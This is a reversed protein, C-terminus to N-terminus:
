KRGLAKLIVDTFQRIQTDLSYEELFFQSLEELKDDSDPSSIKNLIKEALQKPSHPDFTEIRGCTVERLAPIDSVLVPTKLVAAEIPTWGFGEIVSPTVFLDAHTYLWRMEAESRNSTDITVRDELGLQTVLVKLEEINNERPKYGKLYLKHPIENRLINLAQILTNHNKHGSFHNVNLIFRQGQTEEIPQESVQFDFPISNHIVTSDRGSYQMLDKRTYQSISIIHPVRKAALWQMFPHYYRKEKLFSHAMILDHVVLIQHYKKPYFFMYPSFQPTIVIDIHKAKLEEEFPILGLFRDVKRSIRVSNKSDIVIKETKFGALSDIYDETGPWSLVIPNLIDSNALGALLRGVYIHVSVAGEAVFTTYSFDVLVNIKKM